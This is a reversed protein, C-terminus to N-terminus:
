KVGEVEVPKFAATITEGTPKWWILKMDQSRLWERMVAEDTTHFVATVKGHIKPDYVYHTVLPRLLRNM